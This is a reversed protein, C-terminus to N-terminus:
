NVWWCAWAEAWGGVEAKLIAMVEEEKPLKTGNLRAAKKLVKYADQYRGRVALWRPSEDLFRYSSSSSSSTSSSSSSTTSSFLFLSSSSPSVLLFLLPPLFIFPLHTCSSLSILFPIFLPLSVTMGYRVERERGDGGCGCM